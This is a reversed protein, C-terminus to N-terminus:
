HNERLYFVFFKAQFVMIYYLHNTRVDKVIESASHKLLM